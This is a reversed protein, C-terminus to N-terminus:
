FNDARVTFTLSPHPSPKFKPRLEREIGSFSKKNQNQESYFIGRELYPQRGSGTCGYKEPM